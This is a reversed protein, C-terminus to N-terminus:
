TLYSICNSRFFLLVLLMCSWQCPEAASVFYREAERQLVPPVRAFALKPRWPQGHPFETHCCAEGAAAHCQKHLKTGGPSNNLLRRLGCCFRALRTRNAGTTPFLFAQRQPIM